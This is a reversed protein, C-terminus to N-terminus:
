SSKSTPWDRMEFPISVSGNRHYQHAEGVQLGRNNEFDEHRRHPTSKYRLRSTELHVVSEEIKLVRLELIHWRPDIVEMQAPVLPTSGASFPGSLAHTFGMLL